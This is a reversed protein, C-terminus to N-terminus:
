GGGKPPHLGGFWFGEDHQIDLLWQGLASATEALAPNERLDAANLLTPILYGTTEPYPRSWGLLPIAHACSGGGGKCVSQLLWGMALDLSAVYRDREIVLSTPKM